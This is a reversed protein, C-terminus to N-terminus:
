EPAVLLTLTDTYVDSSVGSLSAELFNVDLRANDIGACNSAANNGIGSIALSKVTTSAGIASDAFSLTYAIYTSLGANTMRFNGSGDQQTSTILVNYAAASNNSYVCFTESASLNGTGSWSGLNINDLASVRVSEAVRIQVTFIRRRKKTGNTGGIVSVRFQGTYLGARAQSLGANSIDMQLESNKTNKCLKFQGEHSHSDYANNTLTEQSAGAKVDRHSFSLNIRANGVHSTDNDLYLYFGTGPALDEIKFRYPLHV